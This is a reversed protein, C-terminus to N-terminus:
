TQMGSENDIPVLEEQKKWNNRRALWRFAEISGLYTDEMYEMGEKFQFIQDPENKRFCFLKRELEEGDAKIENMETIRAKEKAEVQKYVQFRLERLKVDLRIIAQVRAMSLLGDLIRANDSENM